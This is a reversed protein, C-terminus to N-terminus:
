FLGGSAWIRLWIFRTWVVGDWRELIWKLMIGEGVDGCHDREQQSEWLFGIHM